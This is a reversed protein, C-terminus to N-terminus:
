FFNGLMSEVSQFMFPGEHDKLIQRKIWGM